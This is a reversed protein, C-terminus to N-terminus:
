GQQRARDPYTRLTDLYGQYETSDPPYRAALTQVKVSNEYIFDLAESETDAIYVVDTHGQLYMPGITPLGQSEYSFIGQQGPRLYSLAPSRGNEGWGVLAAQNFTPYSGTWGEPQEIRDTSDAPLYIYELPQRSSAENKIEYRYLFTNAEVPIASAEDQITMLDRSVSREFEKEDDPPDPTSPWEGYKQGNWSYAVREIEPGTQVQEGNKITFSPGGGRYGVIELIRDGNLDVFEATSRVDTLVSLRNVNLFTGDQGDWSYIWLRTAGFQRCGDGTYVLEVTGDDNLDQTRLFGTAIVCRTREWQDSWVISGNRYVGVVVQPDKRASFVVADELTGQPDFFRDQAKPQQQAYDVDVFYDVYYEPGFTAEVAQRLEQTQQEPNSSVQAAGRGPLLCLFTALALAAGAPRNM